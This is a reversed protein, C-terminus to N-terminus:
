VDKLSLTGIFHNKGVEVGNHRLIAYATTTHFYFNPLMLERVYDGATIAKGPPFFPVNVNKTEGGEFDKASFTALYDRVTQIRQRIEPFTKEVDPHKPPEKSSLRAAGAKAQDCAAQIQRALPYQDPALRAVLLTDPEFGKKKAHAEAEDLWRGLNELMKSMQQIHSHITM